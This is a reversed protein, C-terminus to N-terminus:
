RVASINVATGVSTDVKEEGRRPDALLIDKSRDAPPVWRSYVKLTIGPNSHGLQKSLWALNAGRSLMLSSFTHRLAHLGRRAMGIKELARDWERRVAFYELRKGKSDPFVLESLRQDAMRREKWNRHAAKLSELLEPSLDVWRRGAPTKTKKTTEGQGSQKFIRAQGKFWDVDSWQLPLCEGIRAGTRALFLVLLYRDPRYERFHALIANLEEEEFAEVEEAPVADFKGRLGEAPNRAILEDDVAEALVHRVLMSILGVTSKSLRKAKKRSRLSRAWDKMQMRTLFRVPMDKFYPMAYANLLCRYMVKTRDAKESRDLEELFRRAYDGFTDAGGKKRSQIAALVPAIEQGTALRRMDAALDEAEQESRCKATKRKGCHHVAVYWGDPWQKVSIKM